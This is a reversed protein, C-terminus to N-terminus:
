VDASVSLFHFVSVVPCMMILPQCFPLFLHSFLNLNPSFQGLKVLRSIVSVANIQKKIGKFVISHVVCEYAHVGTIM